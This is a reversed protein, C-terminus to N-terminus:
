RGPVAGATRKAGKAAVSRARFPNEATEVHCWRECDAPELAIIGGDQCLDSLDLREGDLVVRTVLASLVLAGLVLQRAHPPVVFSIVGSTGLIHEVPAQPQCAAALRARVADVAVGSELRPACYAGPAPVADPHLAWYEAANQFMGRGGEDLFSEAPAGEALIVDHSELEIHFYEVTEVAEPQTISDGNVLVWAPILVGEIYLAHQPSVFLDRVPVHEALAGARIRVPLLNRNGAVFRGAYSRRGIWHIPRSKGTHSIVHDGIALDEVAIDGRDTLVRTGRCYCPPTDDVTILTGAGGGVEGAFSIAAAFQQFASVHFYEGTYDGSLQYHASHVGEVITLVDTSSNLIATGGSVYVLSPLEIAGGQGLNIGNASGGAFIELKGASNVAIGDATGGSSVYEYGGSGVVTGTTTGGASVTERSYDSVSDGHTIGGSIVTLDGGSVLFMASAVGAVVANGGASITASIATGGQYVIEHSFLSSVVNGSLVSAASSVLSDGYTGPGYWEIVGSDIIQGGAATAGTPAALPGFILVGGSDVTVGSLEGGSSVLLFGGSSVTTGTASGGSLVYQAGGAAVTGNSDVGGSYIYEAAGGAVTTGIAVGGAFLYGVADDHVLANSLLGSDELFANNVTTDIATGGAAVYQSGGDITGVASGGSSVTEGGGALITGSAIGGSFVVDTAYYYVTAGSAVGGSYVYQHGGSALITNSAAGAVIVTGGASASTATATGGVYIIEQGSSGVAAGSITAGASSVVDFGGSLVVVGSSIVVGGASLTVGPVLAGPLAILTGGSNIQTGSASGGSSVIEYGGSDIISGPASGGSLITLQDGASVTFGASSAGSLVVFDTM